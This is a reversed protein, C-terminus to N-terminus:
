RGSGRLYEVFGADSYADPPLDDSLLAADIDAAALTQDADQQSQVLLLGAVMAVVPLLSALRWGWGAGGHLVAQGTGSAGVSSAVRTSSQTAWRASESARERAVRLRESIDHPVEGTGQSLRASLRRAFRSELVSVDRISRALPQTTPNV